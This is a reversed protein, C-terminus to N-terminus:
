GSCHLRGCHDCVKRKPTEEAEEEEEEDESVEEEETEVLTGSIDLPTQSM